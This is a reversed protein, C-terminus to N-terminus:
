FFQAYREPQKSRKKKLFASDEKEIESLGM